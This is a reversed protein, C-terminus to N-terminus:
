VSITGNRSGRAIRKGDPFLTVTVLVMYMFLSPLIVERSDGADWPRTYGDTAASVFPEGDPSYAVTFVPGYHGQLPGAVLEGTVSNWLRISADYSRHGPKTM